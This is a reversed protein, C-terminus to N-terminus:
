HHEAVPALLTDLLTMGDKAMIVQAIDGEQFTSSGVPIFGGGGRSVGAVLIKGEVNLASTPKGV